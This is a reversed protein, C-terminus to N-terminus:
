GNKNIYNRVGFSLANDDCVEVCRGCNTCEGSAIFGSEKGIISLVQKEPCVDKCKMCLTCNSQNHKVRIASFQGILSYTGGLPCIHGCWGNKVAFLDFLFISLVAAFGMGIGFVIGRHLMSIPSVMEFAAVGTIFSLVLSLGIIWYRVSRGLWVKREVKELYLVRRLWNALDTVMNIPCVWSCFARGGVAMYFLVILGAGVLANIGVIAGAAFMQVIAFPDSLPIFGFLLSGSLNGTLIKLGYANASFYLALISLQSFRRLMMFRHKYIWRMM